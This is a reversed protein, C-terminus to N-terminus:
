PCKTYACSWVTDCRIACTGCSDGFTTEAGGRIPMMEIDKLNAVTEKKLSLRRTTLNNKM